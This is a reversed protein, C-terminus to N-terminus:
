VKEFVTQDKSSNTRLLEDERGNGFKPSVEEDIIRPGLDFKSTLIKQSSTTNDLILSSDGREDTSVIVPSVDQLM